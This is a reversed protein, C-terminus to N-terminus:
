ISIIIYFHTSMIRFRFYLLPRHDLYFESLSCIAIGIDNASTDLLQTLLTPNRLLIEDGLHLCQAAVDIGGAVGLQFPLDANCSVLFDVCDCLNQLYRCIFQKVASRLLVAM